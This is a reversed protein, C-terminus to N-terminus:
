GLQDLYPTEINFEKAAMLLKDLLDKQEAGDFNENKKSRIYDWLTMQKIM